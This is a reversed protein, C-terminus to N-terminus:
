RLAARVPDAERQIRGILDGIRDVDSDAMEGFLPLCLVRAALRRAHPLLEPRASPLDRYSENESCLPFFYKRAYVNEARLARFVGDRDLGFREADVEVPFYGCNPRTHRALQQFRLGAVGELAARYRQVLRTRREIEEDIRDLLALGIAAHVESLKGNLGVGKVTEEDLIGFNRLASIRKRLAPDSGVIAGGEATHFLKTAHFSLVSLDGWSGISRGLTEVGFCHAADYLVRLRHNIALKELREVDCPNGFVHVPLIGSTAPSLCSEAARPDLNYTEPDVDCFVPVLGNWQIAHVTAPFTFPTTVIEGSLELARLAVQLAVTGNCFVLCFGVGLREALRAELERVCRGDNTFWRAAFIDKVHAEFVQPDPELSRTVYLPQEFAPKGGLIALRQAPSAGPDISVARIEIDALRQADRAV